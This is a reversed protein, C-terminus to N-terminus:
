KMVTKNNEKKAVKSELKLQAEPSVGMSKRYM